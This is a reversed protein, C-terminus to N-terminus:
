SVDPDNPLQNLDARQLNSQIEEERRKRQLALRLEEIEHELERLLKKHTKIEKSKTWTSIGGILVSFLMGITFSLILLYGIPFDLSEFTRFPPLNFKFSILTALSNAESSLNSLFFNVIVFIVIAAIFVKIFRWM